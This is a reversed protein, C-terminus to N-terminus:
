SPELREYAAYNYQRHTLSGEFLALGRSWRIRRGNAFHLKARRPEEHKMWVEETVAGELVATLVLRVEELLDEATPSCVEYHTAVGVALGLEEPAEHSITVSARLESGDGELSPRPRVTVGEFSSEAQMTANYPSILSSVLAAIEPMLTM